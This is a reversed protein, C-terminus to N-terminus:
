REELIKLEQNTVGLIIGSAIVDGLSIYRYKDLIGNNILNDTLKDVCIRFLRDILDKKDELDFEKVFEKILEMDTFEDLIRCEKLGLKMFEVFPNIEDHERYSRVSSEIIASTVIERYFLIIDGQYIKPDPYTIYMDLHSYEPYQLNNDIIHRITVINSILSSLEDIDEIILYEM